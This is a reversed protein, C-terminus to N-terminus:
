AGEGEEQAAATGADAARHIEDVFEGAAEQVSEGLREIRSGEADVVAGVRDVAERLRDNVVVYDFEPMAALEDEASRLRRRLRGEDETGRGRLRRLIEDGTPPVVFICVTEEVRRRVSRAGQVDIDLLLKEGARRAERLNSRPTGYLSGHVEAWELFGGEDRLREFDSRDMFHYDEGDSEGPRPDRTTASVSFRVDPRLDVLKRGITTKGSGSPGALVVPFPEVALRDRDPADPSDQDDSRM